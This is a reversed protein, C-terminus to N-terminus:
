HGVSVWRLFRAASELKEVCERLEDVRGEALAEKSRQLGSLIEEREKATLRSEQVRFAEAVKEILDALRLETFLALARDLEGAQELATALDYRLALYQEESRGQVQLGKEFWRVAVMPMGKEMYCVGLLSACELLRSEDQAALQFEAVAENLLGMVKYAIGLNFRTEYDEKGLLEDVGKQFKRLFYTLAEASDQPANGACPECLVRGPVEVCINKPFAKGCEPCVFRRVRHKRSGVLAM